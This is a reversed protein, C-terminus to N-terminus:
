TSLLTKKVGEPTEIWMTSRILVNILEIKTKILFHGIIIGRRIVGGM